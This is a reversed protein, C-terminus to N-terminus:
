RAWIRKLIARLPADILVAFGYSLTLSLLSLLIGTWPKWLTPDIHAIAKWFGLAVLALPTHLLYLPYSIVALIEFFAATRSSISIEISAWILTPFVIMISIISFVPKYYIDLPLFFAILILSIAFLAPLKPLHFRKKLRYLLVGVSFGFTTRLAGAFFTSPGMGVDISGHVLVYYALAAGSVLVVCAVIKDAFKYIFLAYPINIIFEFFLSWAAPDFPYLGSLSHNNSNNPILLISKLIVFYFDTANWDNNEMKWKAIFYILGIVSCFLYTPYLRIIRLKIFQVFSLNTKLKDEYAHVIVFGSLMFFLDVALYANPFIELGGLLAYHYLMVCIAAIGRMADLSYFVKTTPNHLENEALNKPPDYESM